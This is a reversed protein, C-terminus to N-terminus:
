QFDPGINLHIRWPDHDRSLASAFDLRVLGVPSHWRVGVGVGQRLHMHTYNNFANGIDFFVAGSWQELLRHEYEVSGVLLHRGGVLTDEGTLSEYEYGRVTRDGGTRFQLEYPLVNADLSDVSDAETYGWDSRLLIRGKDGLAHIGRLKLQTQWFWLNSGLLESSGRFDLQAEFGRTSYIRDDTNLYSWAVGPILVRFDPNLIKQEDESLEKWVEAAREPTWLLEVLNYGEFLYELSLTEKLRIGRVNRYHHKSIGLNIDELRTSGGTGSLNLQSFEMDEGSYRASMELYDEGVPGTPILYSSGLAYKNKNQTAGLRMKLRHGHRNMNREWDAGGRLETDTGYGLRFRYTNRKARDAHVTVKVKKQEQNRTTELRIKDFYRTQGLGNRFDLLAQNTYFEGSHFGLFGRMFNDTYHEVEFAVEGFRYRPGSDFVLDVTAEYAELDVRVEHTKYEAEFYGREEALKLLMNKGQEYDGHNLIYGERLPFKEGLTRQFTQDELADGVIELDLRTVRLPTGPTIQFGARWPEDPKAPPVLEKEVEARYYGLTHMAKEIEGPARRFLAKVRSESLGAQERQRYISLYARVNDLMEGAVGEIIVEISPGSEEESEQAVAQFAIFFGLCSLLGLWALLRLVAIRCNMPLPKFM